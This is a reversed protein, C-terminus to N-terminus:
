EDEAVPWVAVVECVMGIVVLAAGIIAYLRIKNPTAFILPL